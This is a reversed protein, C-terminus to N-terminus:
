APSGPRRTWDNAWTTSPYESRDRREITRDGVARVPLIGESVRYPGSTATVELHRFLNEDLQCLHQAVDTSVYTM